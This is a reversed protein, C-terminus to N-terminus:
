TCDRRASAERAGHGEAGAGLSAAPMTTMLWHYWKSNEEAAAAAAKEGGVM